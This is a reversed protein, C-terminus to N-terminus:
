EFAPKNVVPAVSLPMYYQLDLGAKARDEENFPPKLLGHFNDRVLQHFTAYKERGEVECIWAFWRQGAGVHTVEDEHIEKLKEVSEVDGANEFRAITQPNVDLGRAEHVMHVVALRALLNGRTQEASEWLAAHIPLAGFHSGLAELRAVLYSYHKAEDNAVKLFDHFFGRPLPQTGAALTTAFRAIIDFALDIAWQEISALSHLIKIRSILSTGNGRKKTRSAEIRELNSDRAPEDPPTGSGIKDILGDNWLKWVHFTLQVKLSPNPENLIRVAWDVLSWSTKGDGLEPREGVTGGKVVGTNKAVSFKALRAAGPKVDVVKVGDVKWEVGEEEERVEVWCEGGEDVFVGLTRADHGKEETQDVAGTGLDFRFSHWPCVIFPNRCPETAADLDEIDEVPGKWLPGGSHPCISEICYLTTNHSLLIYDTPPLSSPHSSLTILLRTTGTPPPVHLPLRYTTM